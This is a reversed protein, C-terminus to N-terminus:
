KSRSDSSAGECAHIVLATKNSECPLVAEATSTQVVEVKAGGEQVGVLLGNSDDPIPKRSEIFVVLDGAEPEPVTLLRQLGKLGKRRASHDRL